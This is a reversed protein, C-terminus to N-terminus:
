KKPLGVKELGELFHEADDYATNWKLLETRADFDPKLALLKEFAQQGEELRGLYGYASARVLWSRYFEPLNVNSIEVLAADYNHDQFNRRAFSFHYWTPHLPNLAIAQKTLTAGKEDLGMFTHFHGAEALIEPDNPNLALARNM